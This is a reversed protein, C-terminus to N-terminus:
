WWNRSSERVKVLLVHVHGLTHLERYPQVAMGSLDSVTVVDNVHWVVSWVMDHVRTMYEYM